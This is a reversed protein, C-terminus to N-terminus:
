VGGGWECEGREPPVRGGEGERVDRGEVGPWVPPAARGGEGVWERMPPDCAGAGGRKELSPV